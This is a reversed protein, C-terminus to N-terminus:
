PEGPPGQHRCGAGQFIGAVQGTGIVFNPNGFSLGWNAFGDVAQKWRIMGYANDQLILVVLNLGLPAATEMERSNMMLGGDGCVALMRREPCLMSAMMASPLGAGDDGARQGAAAYEGCAHPLQACVLDQIGNDLAVIGGEPMVQRVNHLIRQPM